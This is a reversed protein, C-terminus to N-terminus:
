PHERGFTGMYLNKKLSQSYTSFSLIINFVYFFPPWWVRKSSLACWLGHCKQSKWDGSAIRSPNMAILLYKLQLIMDLNYTNLVACTLRNSLDKRCVHIDNFWTSNVKFFLAGLDRVGTDMYLNSMKHVTFHFIIFVERTCIKKTKLIVSLILFPLSRGFFFHPDSSRAALLFIRM